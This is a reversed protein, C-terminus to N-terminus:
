RCFNSLARLTEQPLQLNGMEKGAGRVGGHVGEKPAIDVFSLSYMFSVSLWRLVHKVLGQEVFIDINKRSKSSANESKLTSKEGGSSSNVATTQREALLSIRRLAVATEHLLQPIEGTNQKRRTFTPSSSSTSIALAQTITQPLRNEHPSSSFSKSKQAQGSPSLALRSILTSNLLFLFCSM